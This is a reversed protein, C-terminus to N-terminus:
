GYYSCHSAQICSVLTLSMGQSGRFISIIDLCSRPQLDPAIYLSSHGPFVPPRQNKMYLLPSSPFVLLCRSQLRWWSYCVAHPARLM